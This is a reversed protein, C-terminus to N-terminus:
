ISHGLFTHLGFERIMEEADQKEQGSYDEDYLNNSHGGYGVLRPESFPQSDALYEHFLSELVHGQYGQGTL